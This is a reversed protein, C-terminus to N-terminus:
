APSLLQLLHQDDWGALKRTSRISNRGKRKRILNLSIQRIISFNRPAYDKRVRCDDERFVVDLVWHLQNEIGWHLRIAKALLKADQPLSSIFYRKEVSVNGNLKRESVVMGVSKLNKWEPHREKLWQIDGTSYYCRKEIRGHGKELTSHREVSSHRFNEHLQQEFFLRVDDSLTGQNGKLALVYDAKQRVIAQAIDKQCGMADLTVIAGKLVLLDLLKPVATIENSKCDVAEQALVIEMRSAWASVVHLPNQEAPKDFSHRLSKGDIAVIEQTLSSQFSNVWNVFCAQFVRPNLNAFLDGLVDESPVGNIFPSFRCLFELKQRGYLAIDKFTDAGSVVACLSLILIEELPYSVKWLQRPDSLDEFHKLFSFPAEVAM